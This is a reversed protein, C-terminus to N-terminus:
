EIRSLLLLEFISDRPDGLENLAPKPCVNSPVYKQFSCGEGFV